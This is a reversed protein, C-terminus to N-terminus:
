HCHVLGTKHDMHCCQGMPSDKRCGGGHAYALSTGLVALTLALVFALLTTRMADNGKADLKLLAVPFSKRHGPTPLREVFSPAVSKLAFAQVYRRRGALLGFPPV